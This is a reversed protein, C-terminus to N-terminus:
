STLKHKPVTKLNKIIKLKELLKLTYFTLDIEWWFFGQNACAPYHHHNNHWGEGFTLLALWFNNRSQDKTNYRRSGIKHSVSNISATVHFVAITSICFGWIFLQMGSTNAAPNFYNITEGLGFLFLALFLPVLVDFRDILRLEPFKNFDKIRTEDTAFHKRSLFWGMHSWLFGKFLPSHPDKPTDSSIHHERHHAAWWLPGRQLSTAGLVGFIFQWFRNTEFTKHSFFRHYFGGIAFIRIAYLAIATVLATTSFGVWFVGLCGLHLALFPVIRIWDIKESRDKLNQTVWKNDFWRIPLTLIHYFSNEILQQSMSISELSILVKQLKKGLNYGQCM